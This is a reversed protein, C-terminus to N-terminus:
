PLQWRGLNSPQSNGVVVGVAVGAAVAAVVGGGVGWVWGPIGGSSEAAVSAPAPEVAAPLVATPAPATTPTPSPADTAVPEPAPVPARSTLEAELEDLTKKASDRLPHAPADTLFIKLARAADAPKGLARYCQAVNVLMAPLADLRYAEEFAALARDFHGLKFEREGVRFSEVGATPKAALAPVLSLWALCFIVRM